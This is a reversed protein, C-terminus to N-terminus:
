HGTPAQPGTGRSNITRASEVRQGEGNLKARVTDYVRVRVSRVRQSAIAWRVTVQSVTHQMDDGERNGRDLGTCLESEEQNVCGALITNEWIKKQSGLM